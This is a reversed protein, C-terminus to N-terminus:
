DITSSEIFSEIALPLDKVINEYTVFQDIQNQIKQMDYEPLKLYKSCILDVLREKEWHALKYKEVINEEIGIHVIEHIVSHYADKGCSFGISRDTKVVIQGSSPDYSGGPGYLSLVVEYKPMLKFNWNKHLEVLKKVSEEVVSEGLRIARLGKDFDSKQYVETVFIAELEKLNITAVKEPSSYLENFSKHEPLAVNYGNEKFWSLKDIIYISYSFAEKQTQARFIIEPAELGFVTYIFISSIAISFVIIKKRM